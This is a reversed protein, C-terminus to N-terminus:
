TRTKRARRTRRRRRCRRKCVRLSITLPRSYRMPRRLSALGRHYHAAKAQYAAQDRPRPATQLPSPRPSAQSARPLTHPLPSAPSPPQLPATLTNLPQRHRQSTLTRTPVRASTCACVPNTVVDAVAQPLPLVGNKRDTRYKDARQEIEDLTETVKSRKNPPATGNTYLGRIPNGTTRAREQEQAFHAQTVQQSHQDIIEAPVGEM